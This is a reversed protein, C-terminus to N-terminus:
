RTSLMFSKGPRRQRKKARDLLKSARSRIGKADFDEDLRQGVDLKSREELAHRSSRRESERHKTTGKSPTTAPNPAM